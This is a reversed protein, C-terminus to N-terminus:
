MLSEQQCLMDEGLQYSGQENAIIFVSKLWSTCKVKSRPGGHDGGDFLVIDWVARLSLNRRKYRLSELSCIAPSGLGEPHSRNSTAVVLSNRGAKGTFLFSIM